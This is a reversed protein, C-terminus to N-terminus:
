RPFPRTAEGPGSWEEAVESLEPRQREGPAEAPTGIYVFGSLRETPSLGLAERVRRHYAPWETLWQAGFGAAHAALLLNQCAAGSSLIQEWEPIKPHDPQARSVVAVVVPARLFREREVRFREAPAEPEEARLAAAAAEGLRARAGGRVVLFRWPALKGHDPVRTAARLLTELQRDDPGPEALLRAKVSRRTLLLHLTEKLEAM